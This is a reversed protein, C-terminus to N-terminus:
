SESYSVTVDEGNIFGPLAPGNPYVLCQPPEEEDSAATPISWVAASSAFFGRNDVIYGALTPAESSTAASGTSLNRFGGPAWACSPAAEVLYSAGFSNNVPLASFDVSAGSTVGTLTGQFITGDNIVPTGLEDVEKFLVYRESPGNNVVTARLSATSWGVGVIRDVNEVYDVV